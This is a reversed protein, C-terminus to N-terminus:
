ISTRAFKALLDIKSIMVLQEIMVQQKAIKEREQELTGHLTQNRSELRKVNEKAEMLDRQLKGTEEVDLSYKNFLQEKLTAKENQLKLIEEEKLHVAHELRKKDLAMKM